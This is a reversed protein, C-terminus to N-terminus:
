SGGQQSWHYHWELFEVVQAHHWALFEVVAPALWAPVVVGPLVEVGVPEGEAYDATAYTDGAAEDAFAPACTGLVAVFVVAAIWRM